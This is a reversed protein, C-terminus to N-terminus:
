EQGMGPVHAHAVTVPTSALLSARLSAEAPLQFPRVQGSPLRVGKRYLSSIRKVVPAIVVRDSYGSRMAATFGQWQEQTIEGPLLSRQAKRVGKQVLKTGHRYWKAGMLVLENATEEAKLAGLGPALHQENLRSACHGPVIVSDTDSYVVDDRGLASQVRWLYERGYATVHAAIAVATQPGAPTEHERWVQGAARYETWHEHTRLDLVLEQAVLEPDCSGLATVVYGAQGFKGYLSNLLIKCAYDTVTDGQAKAEQRLRYWEHVYPGFLPTRKYWGIAYVQTLSQDQLAALLEPTCLTTRFRGVPFYTGGADRVPYRPHETVLEVEAICAYDVLLANLREVSCHTSYGVSKWPYENAAMVTPYLSNVDYRTWQPGSLDGLRYAEVRGGYYAQRELAIKEPMHHFEIGHPQLRHRYAHMAQSAITLSLKGADHKQLWNVWRLFWTELILVDQRCYTLLEADDVTAFDVEGKEMGITKALEALPSMTYNTTSVCALNAPHRGDSPRNWLTFFPPDRLVAKKLHWGLKPLQVFMNTLRADYALNHAIVWTKEGKAV